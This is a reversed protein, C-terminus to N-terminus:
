RDGASDSSLPNFGDIAFIAYATAAVSGTRNGKPTRWGHGTDVFEHSAYPLCFEGQGVPSPSTIIMKSLESLYEDALHAYNQSKGEDGAQKHYAAMLKLALIMQSSWECSVVGGRAENRMKAFDFGKVRVLYGEPRQYDVSVSCNAMAFDMISDADMGSEKLKKAGIATISWAYTDTAITSDGKGRKVLPNEMNSYANKSLWSFLEQARKLYSPEQTLQYFMNYFAYADLNHETSYWSLGKGGRLGGERDKITDLWRAISRALDLYKKDKTMDTYQLIALGLWTNPGAHAMFEAVDGSSAYYANAFGGGDMTPAHLYFDFIRQARGLQGLHTFAIGALAEDYTFGWDNIDADGEFSALLGTRNNQHVALWHCFKDLVKKELLVAEKTKTSVDSDVQVKKQVLGALDNKLEDQYKKFFDITSRLETISKQDEHGTLLLKRELLETKRNAQSLLFNMEEIKLKLTNRGELLNKQRVLNDSLSFLLKENEFRLRANYFGGWILALSLTISSVIALAKFFKRTRAYGIIRRRGRSEIEQYTVGVMYQNILGEKLCKLWAPHATAGVAETGIPINIRLGLCSAKDAFFKLDDANIQNVILCLGGSSVDQTFGQRWASLPQGNEDLLQFEVPFIHDLRHYRRREDLPPYGKSAM